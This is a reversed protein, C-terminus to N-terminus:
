INGSGFPDDSGVHSIGHSEYAAAALLSSDVGGSFAVITGGMERFIRNIYEM